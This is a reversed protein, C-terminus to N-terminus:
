WNTSADLPTPPLSVHPPHIVYVIGASGGLWAREFQARDYVRRVTANSWAAPDNVIPNGAADFGVIVVLHGDTGGPFLFGNLGGPAVKISAVLPIGARILQEAEVLSRLRTVFATLGYRAAYAANFPWNGTGGYAADFTGRAALDVSPDAHGAGVWALEEATPAHGWYEVVMQTSTPSCWAEGGGGWHPFHRAHTEQSYAPVTLEVGEGGAWLSAEGASAPAASAVVAGLLRVSPSADESGQRQLTVRLRYGVLRDARARLEDTEVRVDADSQGAMSTRTFATDDQAWLGLVYWPTARGDDVTAQAEVRIWGAAPTAANWSAVLRGFAFGPEVPPSTWTGNTADPALTLAEGDPVVGEFTGLSFAGSSAFRTFLVPSPQSQATPSALSASGVSSGLLGVVCALAVLTLRSQARM